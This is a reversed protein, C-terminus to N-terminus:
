PVTALESDVPRFIYKCRTKLFKHGSFMLRRTAIVTCDRLVLVERMRASFFRITISIAIERRGAAFWRNVHSELSSSRPGRSRDLWMMSLDRSRGHRAM